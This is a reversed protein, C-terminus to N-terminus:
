LWLEQLAYSSLVWLLAPEWELRQVENLGALRDLTAIAAPKQVYPHAMEQVCDRLQEVLGDGLAPAMFPHKPKTRIGEVVLNRMSDRLLTKRGDEPQIGLEWLTHDLFPPRGEISHAMETGDSLVELIYSSLATELWAARAQELPSLNSHEAVIRQFATPDHPQGLLRCIRKGLASKSHFFQPFHEPLDSASTTTLIGLGASDRLPDVERGFYGAFHRYGFLLEDSGEGSLLVKHGDAAVAKALRMKAVLHGNVSLGQAQRVCLAHDDLVEETSLPIVQHPVRSHRAQEAAQTGESYGSCLPFDVTYAKLQSGNQSALALVAASDIGGSTLIATPSDNRLRLQVCEQLRERFLEPTPNMTQAPVAWYRKEQLDDGLEIFHSPRVTRIERFLSGGAPPYQTSAAHLFSAEDWGAPIGAAWLASPKSAFWWESERRAWYLPKVGFRDRAAILKNKVRDYLLFSFEGRLKELTELLGHRRYLVPLAYSDSEREFESALAYFQGNVVAVSHPSAVPQKGAEPRTIALRRHALGVRGNDSWWVGRDDPGRLYLTSLAKELRQKDVIPGSSFVGVIGCM